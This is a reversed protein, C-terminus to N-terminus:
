QTKQPEEQTRAKPPEKTNINEEKTKPTKPNKHKTKNQKSQKISITCSTQPKNTSKM